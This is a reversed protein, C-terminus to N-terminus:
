LRKLVLKVAVVLDTTVQDLQAVQGLDGFQHDARGHEAVFAPAQM